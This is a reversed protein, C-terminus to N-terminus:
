GPNGQEVPLEGGRKNGFGAVIDKTGGALMVRVRVAGRYPHHQTSQKGVEGVFHLRTQLEWSVQKLISFIAQKSMKIRKGATTVFRTVRRSSSEEMLRVGIEHHVHWSRIDM